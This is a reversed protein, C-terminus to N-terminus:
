HQLELLRDFLLPQIIECETDEQPYFTIASDNKASIFGVEFCYM